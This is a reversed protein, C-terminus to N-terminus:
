GGARRAYANAAAWVDSVYRDSDNYSRVAATWGSGTALDTDACLYRAAALAADDIDFPDSRGDGDGDSAWRRWSGPLFQLPGVARDWRSDGDLRGRDTDPVTALGPVNALKVGIIPPASRGDGLLRAGQYTGHQSEVQGIGALTTWSLHCGPSRAALALQASGYAALAVPPVSVRPGLTGAWGALAAPGTSPRSRSASGSATSTTAGVPAALAAVPASPASATSTSTFSSTRGARALVVGFWSGGALAVVLATTIV